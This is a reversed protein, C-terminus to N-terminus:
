QSIDYVIFTLACRFLNETVKIYVVTSLVKLHARMERSRRYKSMALDVLNSCRFCSVVAGCIKSIELFSQDDDINDMNIGIFKLKQQNFGCQKM